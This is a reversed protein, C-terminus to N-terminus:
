GPICIAYATYNFTQGANFFELSVSWGVPQTGNMIPESHRVTGLSQLVSPVNFGGGSAVFGNPCLAECAIVENAGGGSTETCDEDVVNVFTGAFPGPSGPHGRRGRRGRRGGGGGRRRRREAELEDNQEANASGATLAALGTAATAALATRRRTSNSFLRTLRDFTSSDM